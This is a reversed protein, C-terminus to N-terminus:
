FNAYRSITNSAVIARSQLLIFLPLECHAREPPLECHAREPANSLLLLPLKCQAQAPANSLYCSHSSANPKSRHMRYPALTAARMLRAGTCAIPSLTAVRMPSAGTCEILLLLPLECQAQAPASSLYCSLSSANPKRRHM